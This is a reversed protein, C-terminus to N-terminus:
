LKRGNTQENNNAKDPAKKAGNGTPLIKLIIM